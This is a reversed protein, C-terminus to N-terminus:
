ANDKVFVISNTANDWKIQFTNAIVVKESVREETSVVKNVDLESTDGSKVSLNKGTLQMEGDTKGAVISESNNVYTNSLISTNETDINYEKTSMKINSDTISKNDITVKDTNIVSQTPEVTIGKDTSVNVAFKNTTVDVETNSNINISSSSNNINKVNLIDNQSLDVDQLQKKLRTTSM